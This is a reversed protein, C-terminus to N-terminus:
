FGRAWEPRLRTANPDAIASQVQTLLRTKDWGLVGKLVQYNTAQDSRFITKDLPLNDIFLAMETFLELQNLPQYGGAFGQQLRAERQPLSHGDALFLRYVKPIRRSVSVIETCIDQESKASFKKQPTRFM